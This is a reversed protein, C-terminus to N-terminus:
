LDSLADDVSIDGRALAELTEMRTLPPTAADADVLGLRELLADIRSRATPYSVGLSREVEKTNGRARLFTRLLARDEADLSCFECPQFSGTLETGCEDCSLRTTHLRERCVPCAHPATRLTM